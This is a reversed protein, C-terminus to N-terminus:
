VRWDEPSFSGAHTYLRRPLGFQKSLGLLLRHVLPALLATYLSTAVLESIIEVATMSPYCVICYMMWLVRVVLCVALTVAVQTLARYRFLHERVMLVLFAALVYSLSMLGLREVTMLDACMGIFWSGIVADVGRAHLSFFVIIVLLLDPRVGFVEIRSIVSSQLM